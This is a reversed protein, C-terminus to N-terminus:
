DYPSRITKLWESLSSGESQAYGKMNENTLTAGSSDSNDSTPSSLNQHLAHIAVRDHEQLAVDLKAQAQDRLRRASNREKRLIDLQQELKEVLKENAAIEERRKQNTGPLDNLNLDEIKVYRAPIQTIELKWSLM